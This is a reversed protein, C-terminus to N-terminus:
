LGQGPLDSGMGASRVAARRALWAVVSGPVLRSSRARPVGLPPVLQGGDGRLAARDRLHQAHSNGAGRLPASGARCDPRVGRVRRRCLTRSRRGLSRAMEVEMARDRTCRPRRASGRACCPGAPGLRVSSCRVVCGSRHAERAARARVPMNRACASASPGSACGPVAGAGFVDQAPQDVGRSGRQGPAGPLVRRGAGRRGPRRRQARFLVVLLLSALAHVVVNVVHYGRFDTEFLQWELAHLLVHVPAYNEVIVALVSTPDLIVRVNEVTLEHAYVNRLSTTNTTPSSAETSPQATSSSAPVILFAAMSLCRALSASIRPSWRFSRSQRPRAGTHSRQGRRFRALIQRWDTPNEVIPKRSRGCCCARLACSDPGAVRQRWVASRRQFIRRALGAESSRDAYSVSTRGGYAFPQDWPRRSGRGRCASRFRTLTTGQARAAGTRAAGVGARPLPVRQAFRRVRVPLAEEVRSRRFRAPVGSPAPRGCRRRRSRPGERVRRPSARGPHLGVREADADLLRKPRHRLVSMECALHHDGVVAAAVAGRLDGSSRSRADDCTSGFPAVPARQHGADGCGAAAEDQHTIRVVAVVEELDGRVDVLHPVAVIEYLAASERRSSPAHQGARHRKRCRQNPFGSSETRTRRM